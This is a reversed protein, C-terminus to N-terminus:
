KKLATQARGWEALACACAEVVASTQIETVSGGTSPSIAWERHQYPFGPEQEPYGVLMVVRKQMAVALHLMGTVGGVVAASLYELGASTLLPVGASTVFGQQRVPELATHDAPGGGFILQVGAKRWHAALALYNELPWNKHPSSTFPLVFLMPKAPDLRNSAFFRRAENLAEGPLVFENRVRDIRLGCQKVLSLNWDAIHIRDNRPVGRTYAWRRGTSYVSGWRQPAGTLWAILATEGFGQFDVVLSFKERRLRRLLRLTEVIIAKPNGRHYLARDLAIVQDVDRFGQILTEHEKSVLLTIRAGPRNERVVHIAPLTLLVDGIAKLRILLINGNPNM